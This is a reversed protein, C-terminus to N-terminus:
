QDYNNDDDPHVMRLHTILDGMGVVEFSQIMEEGFKKDRGEAGVPVDRNGEEFAERMFTSKPQFANLYLHFPLREQPQGTYNTWTLTEQADLSHDKPHYNAEIQYAVVRDSLPANQSPLLPSMQACLPLAGVLGLLAACFSSERVLRMSQVEYLVNRSCSLYRSLLMMHWLVWSPKVTKTGAARM